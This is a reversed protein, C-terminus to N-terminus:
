LLLKSCRMEYRDMMCEYMASKTMTKVMMVISMADTFM